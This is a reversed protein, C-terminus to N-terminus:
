PSVVSRIHKNIIPALTDAYYSHAAGSPHTDYPLNNMGPQNHDLSIDYYAIGKKRIMQPMSDHPQYINVVVFPVGYEDCQTQFSDLLAGTVTMPRLNELQRQNKRWELMRIFGSYYQGWWPLYDINIQSISCNGTSDLRAMPFVPNAISDLMTLLMRQWSNAMVNREPHFSAYALVVLAPATGKHHAEKMQLYNQVGGYGPAGFNVVRYQPFQQQLKWPYTDTDNVGWGYTFSCGLIWIEPKNVTDPEDVTRRHGERNHTAVFSQGEYFIAEYAGPKLRYGLLSDRKIMAGEGYITIYLFDNYASWPYFGKYRAYRELAAITVLLTVTIFIVSFKWRKSLPM